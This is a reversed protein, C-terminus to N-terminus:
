LALPMQGADIMAQQFAAQGEATAVAGIAWADGSDKAPALWDLLALCDHGALPGHGTLWKALTRRKRESDSDGAFVMELAGVSLGMQAESAHKTGLRYEASMQFIKARLVEPAWPRGAPVAVPEAVPAPAELEDAPPPPEPEAVDTLMEAPEDDSAAAPEPAATENVGRIRIPLTQRGAVKLPLAFLVIKQGVSAEVGDGFLAALKRINTPSLILGKSTGRFYLVPSMVTKGPQPHTEEMELRAIALTFPKGALHEGRLYHDFDSWRAPKPEAKPM